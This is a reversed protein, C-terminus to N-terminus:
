DTREYFQKLGLRLLMFLNEYDDEGILLTSYSTANFLLYYRNFIEYARAILKEIREWSLSNDKTWDKNGKAIDANKHAVISGRWQYLVSVDPDKASTLALDREVEAPDPITGYRALSDVAPNDKLRERFKVEDFIAPNAKITRLLGHTHVQNWTYDGNRTYFLISDSVVGYRWGINGHAHTRKWVIENQLFNEDFIQDLMVKVYHSAHWDCHFYFSDTQKLVRHLEVCRPRM